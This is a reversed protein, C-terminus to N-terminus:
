GGKTMTTEESLEWDGGRVSQYWRVSIQTPSDEVMICRYIGGASDRQVFRWTDGDVWGIHDDVLGSGWYRMWTYVERQPDYGFLGVTRNTAGSGDCKVLATGLWECTMTGSSGESEYTWTGVLYNLRQLEPSREQSLLSLPIVLTVAVLFGLARMM